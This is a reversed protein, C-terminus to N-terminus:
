ILHSTFTSVQPYASIRSTLSSDSWATDNAIFKGKITNPLYTTQTKILSDHNLNDTTQLHGIQNVRQLLGRKIYMNVFALPSVDDNLLWSVIKEPLRWELPPTEASLMAPQSAV